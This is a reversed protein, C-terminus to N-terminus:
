SIANKHDILTALCGGSDLDWMKITKDNSASFIRTGGANIQVRYVSGRHGELTALCEASKTNWIKISNDNSGSIIKKEDHTLIISNVRNGHGTLTAELSGNELNWVGIQGNNFGAGFLKKRDRSIASRCFADIAQSTKITRILEGKPLKYVEWRKEAFGVILTKDDSSLQIGTIAGIGVNLDPLKRGSPFVWSGINSNGLTAFVKTDDSSLQLGCNAMVNASDDCGAVREGTALKRYEIGKSGSIIIYRDDHSIISHGLRGLGAQLSIVAKM